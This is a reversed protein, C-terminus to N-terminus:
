LGKGNNHSPPVQKDFLTIAMAMGMAVAKLNQIVANSVSFFVGVVFVLNQHEQNPRQISSPVVLALAGGPPGFKTKTHLQPRINFSGQARERHGPGKQM